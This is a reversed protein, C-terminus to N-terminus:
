CFDQLVSRIVDSKFGKASLRQALKAKPLGSSKDLIRLALEREKEFPLNEKLLAEAENGEIGRQMLKAKLGYFGFTKGGSASGGGASYGILSELYAQAYQEDNLMGEDTLQVLVEFIAEQDFGRLALKRALEQSHHPRIKLLSLAKEYIKM